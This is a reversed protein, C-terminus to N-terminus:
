SIICIKSCCRSDKEKHPIEYSKKNEIYKHLYKMNLSNFMRKVNNNYKASIDIYEMNYMQTFNNISKQSINKYISDKKNGVLIFTPYNDTIKLNKKIMILRNKLNSFTIPRTLDFVLIIYNANIYYTKIINELGCEGGTDYIHNTINYKTNDITYNSKVSFFDVGITIPPSSNFYEEAYQEAICSKGVCSDGILVYKIVLNNIM